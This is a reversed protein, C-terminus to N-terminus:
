DWRVTKKIHDLITVPNNIDFTIKGDKVAYLKNPRIEEGGARSRLRKYGIEDAHAMLIPYDLEQAVHYFVWLNEDIENFQDNYDDLIENITMGEDRPDFKVMLYKKLSQLVGKKDGSSLRDIAVTEGRRISAIEKNLERFSDKHKNWLQDYEKVEDLNKKQAFLLSTKTSTFPQFTLYPLSIVAKVHFYRYIMLRVQETDTATFVTEPLVVGLRGRPSLLQYWREVFLTESNESTSYAYIESLEEKTEKALTISFPPNSLIVDFQENVRKPYDEINKSIKLRSGNFKSFDSLADESEINVSGDGHMVMNIKSAMALDENFDIGYIYNEAWAHKRPEPFNRAVFEEINKNSQIKDKNQLVYNTITKMSEILYTGSGCSPDILYPLTSEENIKEIALEGLSLAQIIFNVM